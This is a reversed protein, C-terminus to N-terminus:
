KDVIYQYLHNDSLEWDLYRSMDVPPKGNESDNVLHNDVYIKINKQRLQQNVKEYGLDRDAVCLDLWGGAYIISDIEPRSDLFYQLELISRMAILLKSKSKFELLKKDTSFSPKNFKFDHYRIYHPLYKRKNNYWENNSYHEDTDYSALVFTSVIQSNEIYDIINKVLNTPGDWVDIIIMLSNM